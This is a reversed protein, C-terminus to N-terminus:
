LALCIIFFVLELMTDMEFIFINTGEITAAFRMADRM